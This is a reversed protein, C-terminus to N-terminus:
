KANVVPLLHWALKHIDPRSTYREFADNGWSAHLEELAQRAAGLSAPEIGARLALARWRHEPRTGSAAEADKLLALAAVRDGTDIRAQAMTLHAGLISSINGSKENAQLSEECNRLGERRNGTAIQAPGLVAQLATKAKPENGAAALARRCLAIAAAYHGASLELEARARTLDLLLSPYSAAEADAEDFLKRAGDYDGLIRLNDGLSLRASARSRADTSLALNERLHSTAQPYNDRASLLTALSQHALALGDHDKGKEAAQLAQQFLGQASDLNGQDRQYRGMMVLAQVTELAYGNAQYYNLAEQAERASEAAAGLRDHLSALNLLSLAVMHDANNRRSLELVERLQKEAGAYDQRARYAQALQSLGSLALYEV